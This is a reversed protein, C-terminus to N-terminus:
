DHDSGRQTSAAKTLNSSASGDPATQPHAGLTIRVSSQRYSGRAKLLSVEAYAGAIETTESSLGRIKISMSSPSHESNKSIFLVGLTKGTMAALQLRRLTPQALHSHWALVLGCHQIQLAKEMSWLAEKSSLRESSAPEQAPKKGYFDESRLPAETGGIILIRRLDIGAQALGPAYPLHPPEIWLVWDGRAILHRMLPLFLQLEGVGWRESVVEILGQTPWGGAPLIADLETFGTAIAEGSLGKHERGRWLNRNSELLEEITPSSKGDSENVGQLRSLSDGMGLSSAEIPFIKSSKSSKSSDQM